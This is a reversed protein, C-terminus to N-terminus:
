KRYNKIANSLKEQDVESFGKSLIFCWESTLFEFADTRVSEEVSNDVCDSIAHRVVNLCLDKYANQRNM